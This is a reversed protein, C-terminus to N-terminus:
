RVINYIGRGIGPADSQIASQLPSERIAGVTAGINSITNVTDFGIAISGKQSPVTM